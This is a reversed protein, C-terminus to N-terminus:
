INALLNSCLSQDRDFTSTTNHCMGPIARATCNGCRSWKGNYAMCTVICCGLCDTKVSTTGWVKKLAQNPRAQHQLHVAEEFLSDVGCSVDIFLTYLCPM